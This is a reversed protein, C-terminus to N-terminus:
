HLYVSMEFQQGVRLGQAHGHLPVHRHAQRQPRAGDARVAAGAGVDGDDDDEGREVVQGPIFYTKGSFQNETLM